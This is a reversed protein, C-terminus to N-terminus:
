SHPRPFSFLVEQNSPSFLVIKPRGALRTRTLSPSSALGTVSYASHGQAYPASWGNAGKSFSFSSICVTVRLSQLFTTLFLELQQSYPELIESRVIKWAVFCPFSPFYAHETVFFIQLYTGYFILILRKPLPCLSHSFFFIECFWKCRLEWRMVSSRLVLLQGFRCTPLPLHGSWSFFRICLCSPCPRPM